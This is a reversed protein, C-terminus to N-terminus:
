SSGGQLAYNRSAQELLSHVESDTTQSFDVYWAGVARFPEPTYLVIFEEVISRFFSATEPAAVPVAVVIRDPQLQRVARIAALMTSGTALGDDIFLITEGKLPPLPQIGYERERRALEVQERECVAALAEDSIHFSRILDRDLLRIGGPALAGMALEERGPLGLKRVVFVELPLHLAQAVEFAVPVGGRPLALIRTAARNPVHSLRQALQRGADFRDQFIAQM